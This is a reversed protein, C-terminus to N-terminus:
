AFSNLQFQSQLTKLLFYLLMSFNISKNMINHNWVENLEDESLINRMVHQLIAADILFHVRIAKDYCGWALVHGATVSGPYILQVIESLGSDSM